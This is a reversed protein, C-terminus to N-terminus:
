RTSIEWKEPSYTHYVKGRLYVTPSIYPIEVELDVHDGPQINGINKFPVTKEWIGQQTARSDDNAM